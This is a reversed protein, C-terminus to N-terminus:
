LHILPFILCFVGGDIAAPYIKSHLFLEIICRKFFM